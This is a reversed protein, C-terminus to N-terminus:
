SLRNVMMAYWSNRITSFVKSQMRCNKSWAMVWGEGCWSVVKFCQTLCSSLHSSSVPRSNILRRMIHEPVTWNFFPTDPKRYILDIIIIPNNDRRNLYNYNIAFGMYNAWMYIYVRMKEGGFETWCRFLNLNISPGRSWMVFEIPVKKSLWPCLM